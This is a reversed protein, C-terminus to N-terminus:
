KQIWPCLDDHRAPVHVSSLGGHLFDNFEWAAFIDHAHFQVQGVALRNSFEGFGDVFTVRILINAIYIYVYLSKFSVFGNVKEIDKGLLLAWAWCGWWCRRRSPRDKHSFQLRSRSASRPWGSRYILSRREGPPSFFKEPSSVGGLTQNSVWM